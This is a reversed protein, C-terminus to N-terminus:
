FKLSEIWETLRDVWTQLHGQGIALSFGHGGEPYIHMESYIKEKQLAEYFLISNMVSVVKDDSAHVIFTPPTNKNVHLENSYFDILEEDPNEGLLNYRSGEHTYSSRMTIVPYILVMFDPRASLSDITSSLSNVGDNYHTGLTSALHGGASFGMIGIQNKSVNWKEANHRVLRIARHADQLSVNHELSTANSQPLRYKLVFAAIGKSNLWKAFDSGEWDYVVGEYGGGPCIVMAKGTASRKSPLYIQLTPEQVNRIWLVDGYEKTEVDNTEQYNPIKGSWLSITSDQSFCVNNIILLSFILFIAKRM